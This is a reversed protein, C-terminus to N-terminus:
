PTPPPILTYSGRQHGVSFGMGVRGQQSSKRVVFWEGRVVTKGAVLQQRGAVPWQWQKQTVIACTECPGIGPVVQDRFGSAQDRSGLITRVM